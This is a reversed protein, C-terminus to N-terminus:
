DVESENSAGEPRRLKDVQENIQGDGGRRDETQISLAEEEEEEEEVHSVDDEEDEEKKEEEGQVEMRVQDLPPTTQADGNMGHAGDPGGLAEQPSQHGDKVPSSNASENSVPSIDSSSNTHNVSPSGVGSPSKLPIQWSPIKPIAPTSPFQRRSLLLGKLSAIEAKLEGVTQNDLIRNTSSSTEAASLEQSLEQIKQQQQVLLEQIHVLTQQLQTVTQTLTGSMAAINSEMRQLHKKDERSGMILPLIYKKYLQHFGFAIGVMIITLAGYDRWRYSPPVPTLQAAYPPTPLGVPSLPLIEETSGSRQIALEVEEDTLGKKKLFAKRTALPSERVKPNQLFKVATAVLAERPRATGDDGSPLGSQTPPDPQETSAM